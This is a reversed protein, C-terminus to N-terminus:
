KLLMFLGFLLPQHILYILLAHQGLFSFFNNISSKRNFFYTNFFKQHWGLSVMSMGILVFSIWPVFRVVDVSIKPPLHLPNVLLNFLWHMNIIEMHFAIFSTVALILSLYPHNLLPLVIFSAILIFHLIGFYIWSNPFIVYSSSTVLFSAIGLYLARKKLSSWNIKQQHALKLSMGVTLLFMSVILFRFWIFFTNSQIQFDIINFYHIDYSFHFIVMLLIAWGRFIDIGILRKTNKM